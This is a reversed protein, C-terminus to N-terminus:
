QDDLSRWITSKKRCWSLFFYKRKDKHHKKWKQQRKTKKNQKSFNFQVSIPFLWPSEFSEFLYHICIEDCSWGSANTFYVFLTFMVQYDAVSFLWIYKAVTLHIYSEIQRHLVMIARPILTKKRVGPQWNSEMTERKQVCHIMCTLSSFPHSLM